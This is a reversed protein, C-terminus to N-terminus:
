EATDREARELARHIRQFTAADPLSKGKEIRCLTEPRIGSRRALEIQTLGARRRALILKRALSARAYEAAPVNGKGDPQPLAPGASDALERALERMREYENEPLVVFRKGDNASCILVDASETLVDGKKVETILNAGSAYSM